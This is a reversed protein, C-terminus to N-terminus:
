YLSTFFTLVFSFFSPIKSATQKKIDRVVATLISGTINLLLFCDNYYQSVHRYSLEYLVM